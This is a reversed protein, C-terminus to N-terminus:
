THVHDPAHHPHAQRFSRVTYGTLRVETVARVSASRPLNLIPGLEGVYNGSVIRALSETDGSALERYVEVEGSEVLYILDGRDGQRFLVDGRGLCVEESPRDVDAAFRPALEIVRDALQTV